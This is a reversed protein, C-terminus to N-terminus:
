LSFVWNCCDSKFFRGFFGAMTALRLLVRSHNSIGLMAFDYLTHFNNKSIGRKRAPQEYPIVADFDPERVL